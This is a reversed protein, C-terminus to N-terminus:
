FIKGRIDPHILSVIDKIREKVPFKIDAILENTKCSFTLNLYQALKQIENEPSEVLNDYSIRYINNHDLNEDIRMYYYACRNINDLGTWFEYDETKVWSPIREDKYKVLPWVSNDNSLSSKELWNKALLSNITDTPNRKVIVIKVDPFYSIYKELFPTLDPMKFAVKSQSAIKETETKRLSQSLRKNIEERSKMNLIYSDDNSNFNLNRGAIAGYFLEEHLSINYVYKWTERDMGDIVNFLGWIVPPEFFYEVQQMSGIVKGLITTGSRANGTLVITKEQFSDFYNNTDFNM